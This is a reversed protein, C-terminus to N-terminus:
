VAEGLAAIVDAKRPQGTARRVIRGDADLVLVTPTKLIELERVLELRDEADIEVHRVGPVMGAVETLVRRTARCPACFASSFQVLTAREGLGEGLEAAGLRKGGDRGRVRVRGNRRRQLVGFASAAVLVVVCVALGTM